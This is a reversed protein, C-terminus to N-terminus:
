LYRNSASKSSYKASSDRLHLTLAIPSIIYYMKGDILLHCSQCCSYTLTIGPVAFFIGAKKWLCEKYGARKAVPSLVVRKRPPHQHLHAGLHRKCEINLLTCYSASARPAQRLQRSVCPALSGYRSSATTNDPPFSCAQLSSPEQLMFSTSQKERCRQRHNGLCFELHRHVDQM